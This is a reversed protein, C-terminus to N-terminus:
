LLQVNPGPRSVFMCPWWLCNKNRIPRNFFIKESVALVFSGFSLLFCRHFTRQFGCDKYLTSSRGCISGVLNRNMQGLPKLSSTKSILWDSVLIAQPPWTKWHILVLHTMKISPRGLISGVLNRNMQCHPKLPSSKKYILWNSVLIAKYFDEGRFGSQWIFRFMTPLM